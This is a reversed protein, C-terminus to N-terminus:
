LATKWAGAGALESWDFKDQWFSQAVKHGSSMGFKYHVSHVSHFYYMVVEVGFKKKFYLSRLFISHGQFWFQVWPFPMYFELLHVLTVLVCIVWTLLFKIYLVIILLLLNICGSGSSGLFCDYWASGQLLHSMSVQKM